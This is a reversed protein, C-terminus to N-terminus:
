VGSDSIPRLTTMTALRSGRLIRPSSDFPMITAAESPSWPVGTSAPNRSSTSIPARSFYTPLPLKQQNIRVCMEVAAAVVVVAFRHEVAGPLRTYLRNQRDSDAIAGVGHVASEVEAAPIRTLRLHRSYQSRGTDM